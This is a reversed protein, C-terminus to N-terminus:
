TVTRKLWVGGRQLWCAVSYVSVKYLTAHVHNHFQTGNAPFKVSRLACLRERLEEIKGCLTPTPLEADNLAHVTHQVDTIAFNAFVVQFGHFGHFSDAVPLAFQVPPLTLLMEANTHVLITHMVVQNIRYLRTMAEFRGWFVCVGGLQVGWSILRTDAHQGRDLIARAHHLVRLVRKFTALMHDRHRVQTAFLAGDTTHTNNLKYVYIRAYQAFLYFADRFTRIAKLTKDHRKQDPFQTEHLAKLQQDLIAHVIEDGLLKPDPLEARVAVNSQMGNAM